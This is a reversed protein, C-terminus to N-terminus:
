LVVEVDITDGDEMDLDAPTQAGEIRMSYYMFRLNKMDMGQRNCYAQMLHQLPTTPKLAFLIANGNEDITRVQISESSTGSSTGSSSKRKKARKIVEIIQRVRPCVIQSSSVYLTLPEVSSRVDGDKMSLQAPTQAEEIQVGDFMFRVGDRSQPLRNCYANM